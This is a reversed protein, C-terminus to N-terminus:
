RTWSANFVVGAITPNDPSIELTGSPDVLGTLTVWGSVGDLVSVPFAKRKRPRFEVPINDMVLGGIPYRDARGTLSVLDGSRHLRPRDYSSGSPFWGTTLDAEREQPLDLPTVTLGVRGPNNPTKMVLFRRAEAPHFTFKKGYSGFGEFCVTAWLSSDNFLDFVGVVANFEPSTGFAGSINQDQVVTINLDGGVALSYARVPAGGVKLESGDFVPPFPYQNWDSGLGSLNPELVIWGANQANGFYDAPATTPFPLSNVGMFSSAGPLQDEPAGGTYFITRGQPFDTSDVDFRIKAFAEAPYNVWTVGNFVAVSWAPFASLDGSKTTAVVVMAGEEPATLVSVDQVIGYSKRLMLAKQFTSLEFPTPPPAVPDEARTVFVGTVGSHFEVLDGDLLDRGAFTGSGQAVYRKGDMAGVPPAAASHQEFGDRSGTSDSMDYVMQGATFVPTDVNFAMGAVVQLEGGPPLQSWDFPATLSGVGDTFTVEGTSPDYDMYVKSGQSVPLVGTNVPGSPTFSLVALASFNSIWIGFVGYTEPASPNGNLAGVLDLLSLQSNALVM